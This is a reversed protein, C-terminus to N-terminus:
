ALSRKSLSPNQSWSAASCVRPKRPHHLEAQRSRAALKPKQSQPQETRSQWRDNPTKLMLRAEIPHRRLTMQPLAGDAFDNARSMSQFVCWASQKVNATRIMVNGRNRAGANMHDDGTRLMKLLPNQPGQANDQPPTQDRKAESQNEPQDKMFTNTKATMEPRTGDIIM